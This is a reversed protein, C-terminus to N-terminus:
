FCLIHDNEKVLEYDRIAKMFPRWIEKRYKTILSHEVEQYTKM